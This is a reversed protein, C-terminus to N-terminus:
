DSKWEQGRGRRLVIGWLGDLLEFLVLAAIGAEVEGVLDPPLPLAVAVILAIAVEVVRRM